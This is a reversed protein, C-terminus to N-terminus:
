SQLTYQATNSGILEDGPVGPVREESVSLMVEIDRTGDADTIGPFESANLEIRIKGILSTVDALNTITRGTVPTYTYILNTGTTEEPASFNDDGGNTLTWVNSNEGEGILTVFLGQILLLIQATLLM